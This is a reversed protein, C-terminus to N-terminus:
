KRGTYELFKHALSRFKKRKEHKKREKLEERRAIISEARSRRRGLRGKEFVKSEWIRKKIEREIRRNYEKETEGKKM